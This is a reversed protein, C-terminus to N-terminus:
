KWRIGLGSCQSAADAMLRDSPLPSRLENFRLFPMSLDFHEGRDWEREFLFGSVARTVAADDIVISTESSHFFSQDDLNGSGVILVRDDFSAFKTHFCGPGDGSFRVKTGEAVWWRGAFNRMLRDYDEESRGRAVIACAKLVGISRENSGFGGLANVQPENREFPVLLRVTVDRGTMAEVLAGQLQPANMNPSSLAISRSASSVAALVGRAWPNNVGAINQFGARRKSLVTIPLCASASPGTQDFSPALVDPDHDVKFPTRRNRCVTRYERGRREIGCSFDTDAWLTDFAELASHAVEGKVVVASDREPRAYNNKAQPNAGGIHLYRGDVILLKDHVSYRGGYHYLFGGHAHVYMELPLREPDLGRALYLDLWPKLLARAKTRALGGMFLPSLHDAYIRIRFPAALPRGADIRRAFARVLELYPEADPEMAFSVLDIESDATEILRAAATFIAQSDLLTPGFANRRTTIWDPDGLRARHGPRTVDRVAADVATGIASSECGPQGEYWHWEGVPPVAFGRDDRHSDPALSTASQARYLELSGSEQLPAARLTWALLAAAALPPVARTARM